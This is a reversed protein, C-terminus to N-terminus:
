QELKVWLTMGDTVLEMTGREATELVYAVREKLRALVQANPHGYSNDAGVSIVAVSPSTAELFAETTSTASGHHAVKLVTSGLEPAHRLLYTEATEEIEGPLLLSARRYRILLVVGNNNTDRNTGQLLPEPPHLVGMTLDGLRGQMGDRATLVQVGRQQLEERWRDYNPSDTPTEPDLVAGVPYEGPLGLLGDLHDADPHTLVVVDLRRAGLPLLTSLHDLLLRPDPGGDILVRHGEPSQILIADGQGIDLVTFHLRGDTPPLVAGWVFVRALVLM